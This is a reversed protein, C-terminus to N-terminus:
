PAALMTQDPVALLSGLLAAMDQSGDNALSSYRPVALLSGLLAAMDQSGDNALSSYRPAAAPVAAASARSTATPQVGTALVDNATPLRRVGPALTDGMVDQPNSSD